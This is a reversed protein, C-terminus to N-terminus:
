YFLFNNNKKGYAIVRRDFALSKKEDKQVRILGKEAKSNLFVNFLQEFHYIGLYFVFRM